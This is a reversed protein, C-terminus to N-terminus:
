TLLDDFDFHSLDLTGPQGARVIPLDVEEDASASIELRVHCQVEKAVAEVIFQEITADRSAALTSKQFLSDPLNLTTQIPGAPKPAAPPIQVQLADISGTLQLLYTAQIALIAVKALAGQVINCSRLKTPVPRFSPNLGSPRPDARLESTESLCRTSCPCGNRACAPRTLTARVITHLRARSVALRSILFLPRTRARSNLILAHRAGAIHLM